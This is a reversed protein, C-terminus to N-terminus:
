DYTTGRAGALAKLKKALRAGAIPDAWLYLHPEILELESLVWEGNVNMADIRAFLAGQMFGVCRQMLETLGDPPEIRRSNGGYRRQVRFDGVAPLKQICHSASEGIVVMSLEGYTSVSDVFPQVLHPVSPLVPQICESHLRIRRVGDGSAGIAPKIVLDTTGFKLAAAHLDIPSEPISILTPVIPIGCASVRNLYRKDLNERIMPIPNWTPVNALTLRDLWRDFAPYAHHYGWCARILVCDYRSWEVGEDSWIEFAVEFGADRLSPLLYARDDPPLQPYQSCTVIAVTSTM